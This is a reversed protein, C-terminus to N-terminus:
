SALGNSGLGQGLGLLFGLGGLAGGFGQELLAGSRGLFARLFLGLGAFGLLGGLRFLPSTM